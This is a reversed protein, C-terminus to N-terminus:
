VSVGPVRKKDLLVGRRDESVFDLPSRKKKLTIEFVPEVREGDRNGHSKPIGSLPGTLMYCRYQIEKM